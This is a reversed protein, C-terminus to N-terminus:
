TKTGLHPGPDAQCGLSRTGRPELFGGQAGVGGM